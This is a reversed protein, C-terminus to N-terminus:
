LSTHKMLEAKKEEYEERDIEGRAYRQQLIHLPSKAYTDKSGPAKLWKLLAIIGLIILAWFLLMHLGGFIMWGWGTAGMDHWMM